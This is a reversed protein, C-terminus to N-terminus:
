AAFDAHTIEQGAELKAKIHRAATATVAFVRQLRGYKDRGTILFGEAGNHISKRIAFM